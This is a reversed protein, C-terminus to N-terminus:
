RTFETWSHSATVRSCSSPRKRQRTPVSFVTSKMTDADVSETMIEDLCYVKKAGAALLRRKSRARTHIDCCIVNDTYNLITRCDNALVVEVEAGQEKIM